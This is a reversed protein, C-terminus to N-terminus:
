YLHSFDMFQCIWMAFIMSPVGVLLLYILGDKNEQPIETLQKINM